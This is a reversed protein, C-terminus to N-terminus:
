WTEPGLTWSALISHTRKTGTQQRCLLRQRQHRPHRQHRQTAPRPLLKWTMRQPTEKHLACKLRNNAHTQM